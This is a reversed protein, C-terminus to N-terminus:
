PLSRTSCPSRKLGANHLRAQMCSQPIQLKVDSRIKTSADERVQIVNGHKGARTHGAACSRRSTRAIGRRRWRAPTLWKLCRLVAADHRTAYERSRAHAPLPSHASIMSRGRAHAAFLLLWGADHLNPLQNPSGGHLLGVAKGCAGTGRCERFRKGALERPRVGCGFRKGALERPRRRGGRRAWFGKGALKKM